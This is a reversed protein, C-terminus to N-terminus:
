GASGLDHQVRFLPIGSNRYKTEFASSISDPRLSSVTVATGCLQELAAAFELAYIEWNCRMELVGGLAVLTPFVPHGHWRRRLQAAKPWPNPYLLYHRAMSWGAQRALWWFSALEARLWITNGVQHPFQKAGCRALRHASQDVGIVWCDPYLAAIDRTSQGTGCGSDLILPREPESSLVAELAQFAETTPKHLKVQWPHDVHSQVVSRLRSHVGSQASQVPRSSTIPKTVVAYAYTSITARLLLM